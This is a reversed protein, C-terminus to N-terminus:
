EQLAGSGGLKFSEKSGEEWGELWAVKRGMELIKDVRQIATIRHERTIVYSQDRSTSSAEYLPVHRIPPAQLRLKMYLVWESRERVGLMELLTDLQVSTLAEDM